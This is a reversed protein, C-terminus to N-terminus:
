VTQFRTIRVVVYQSGRDSHM